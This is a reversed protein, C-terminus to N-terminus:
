CLFEGNVLVGTGRERALEYALSTERADPDCDLEISELSMPPFVRLAKAKRVDRCAHDELRAFVSHTSKGVYLIREAEACRDLYDPTHDSFRLWRRTLAELDTAPQACRISYCGPAKADAPDVGISELSYAVHGNSLPTDLQTSM